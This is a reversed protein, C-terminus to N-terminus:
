TAEPLTVQPAAAPVGPPKVLTTTLLQRTLPAPETIASGRAVRADPALMVQSTLALIGPMAPPPSVASATTPMLPLVLASLSILVAFLESVFDIATISATLSEGAVVMVVLPAACATGPLTSPLSVTLAAVAVDAFTVGESTLTVPPAVM